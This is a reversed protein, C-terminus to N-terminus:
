GRGLAMVVQAVNHMAFGVAYYYPTSLLLKYRLSIYQHGGENICLLLQYGAGRPGLGDM